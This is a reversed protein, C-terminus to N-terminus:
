IVSYIYLTYNYGEHADDEGTRGGEGGCIM